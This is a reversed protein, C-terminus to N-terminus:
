GRLVFREVSRYRPGYGSPESVMLHFEFVGFPGVRLSLNRALWDSVDDPPCGEIRALTVHPHFKRKELLFGGRGLEARLMRQLALLRPEKKVGAWLVRPRGRTPFVGASELELRFPAPRVGSALDALDTIQHPAVDGLFALTLHFDTEPVWHAATIGECADDLTDLVAPPPLVAFFVRPV